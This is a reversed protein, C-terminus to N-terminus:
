VSVSGEQRPIGNQVAVPAQRLWEEAVFAAWFYDRNTHDGNRYRGFDEVFARNDIVSLDSLVLDASMKELREAEKQTAGYDFLSRLSTKGRQWSVEKPLIGDMARRLVLKSWSVEFNEKPPISALFEILRVDWFPHRMELGFQSGTQEAWATWPSMGAMAVARYTARQERTLRKGRTKSNQGAEYEDAGTLFEQNLWRPLAAGETHTLRRTAWDPLLQKMCRRFVIRKIRKPQNSLTKRYELWHFRTLLDLLYDIGVTAMEGGQGTLLVRVGESRAEDFTARLLAEYPATYPEDLAVHHGPIPKMGWYDEGNIFHNQPTTEGIVQHIRKSEDMVPMNPFVWSFSHLDSGSTDGSQLIQKANAYVSPSDVGGSLMCGVPGVSRLRCRVAEQFIERYREAYEERSALQVTRTPDLEWYARSTIGSRRVLLSHGAPVRKVSNFFTHEGDGVKLSLFLSLQAVDLSRPVRPSRLLQKIESGFIFTHGDFFYYLIKIGTHDRACLWQEKAEDWLAFAFDGILHAPMQEGWREYARLALESDGCDKNGPQLQDILEKRNDLRGDFAIVSSGMTMPQRVNAAEPTTILLCHALTVSGNSWTSRGDPGRHSVDSMMADMFSTDVPAGDLNWTGGIASM